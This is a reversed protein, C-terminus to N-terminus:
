HLRAAMVFSRNNASSGHFGQPEGYDRTGILSSGPVGKQLMSRTSYFYLLTDFCGKSNEVRYSGNNESRIM